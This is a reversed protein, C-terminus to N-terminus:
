TPSGRHQRDPQRTQNRGYKAAIGPPDRLTVSEAGVMDPFDITVNADRDHLGSTGSSGSKCAWDGEAPRKEQQFAQFCATPRFPSPPFIPQAPPFRRCPYGPTTILKTDSTLNRHTLYLGDCNPVSSVAATFRNRRGGVNLTPPSAFPTGSAPGSRAVIDYVCGAIDM